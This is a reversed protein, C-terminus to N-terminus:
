GTPLPLAHFQGRGRGGLVRDGTPLLHGHGCFVHDPLGSGRGAARRGVHLEATVHPPHGVRIGLAGAPM